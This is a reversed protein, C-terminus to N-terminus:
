KRIGSLKVESTRYEYHCFHAFGNCYTSEPRLNTAWSLVDDMIMSASNTGVVHLITGSPVETFLDRIIADKARYGILYIETAKSLLEKGATLMRTYFDNFYDYLKSTLPMLLLPCVMNRLVTADLISDSPNYVHLTNNLKSPDFMARIIADVMLTTENSPAPINLGVFWNVSGHPKIYRYKIYNDLSGYLEAGYVEYLAKDLLTDYNFSISGFSEEASYLENIFFRYSNDADYKSSIDQFLFWLYITLEGFRTLDAHKRLDDEIQPIADWWSTLWEELQMGSSLFREQYSEMRDQPIRAKNAFSSFDTHLLDKTLPAIRPSVDPRSDYSAGAGYIFIKM